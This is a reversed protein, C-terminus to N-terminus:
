KRRRCCHQSTACTRGGGDSGAFLSNKRTITQPRIVREVINSNLEIRGGILFREFIARRSVAYRIAEALKSRGSIRRLTKQWLDFLDAVVAASAQQRVAVPADPSQGRVTKEVHWLKTMRELTATAVESSGSVHLEYFKRRSHSWCGPWHSAMMAAIADRSSTIPATAMWKCSAVIAMSIGSPANAPAATKSAILWWRPATAALRETMGPMPGDGGALGVVHRAGLGQEVSKIRAGDDDGVFAVIGITNTGVDTIM